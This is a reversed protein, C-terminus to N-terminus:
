QFPSVAHQWSPNDVCTEKAGSRMSCRTPGCDCGWTMAAGAREPERFECPDTHTSSFEKWAGGSALCAEERNASVSSFDVPPWALGDCIGGEETERLTGGHKACPGRIEERARQAEEAILAELRRRADDAATDGAPWPGRAASPGSGKGECAGLVLLAIPLLLITRM